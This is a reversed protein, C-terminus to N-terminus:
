RATLRSRVSVIRLPPPGMLRRFLPRSPRDLRNPQRLPPDPTARPGSVSTTGIQERHEYGAASTTWPFCRSSQLRPLGAAPRSGRHALRLPPSPALGSEGPPDNGDTREPGALAHDRRGM